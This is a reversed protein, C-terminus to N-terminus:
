ASLEYQLVSPVQFDQIRDTPGAHIGQIAPQWDMYSLGVHGSIESSNQNGRSDALLALQSSNAKPPSYQEDKAKFSFQM